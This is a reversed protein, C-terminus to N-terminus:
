GLTSLVLGVPLALLYLGSLKFVTFARRTDAAAVTM